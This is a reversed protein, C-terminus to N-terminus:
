EALIYALTELGGGSSSACEVEIDWRSFKSNNNLINPVCVLLIHATTVRSSVLVLLTMIILMIILMM